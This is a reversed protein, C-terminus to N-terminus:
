EAKQEKANNREQRERSLHLIESFLARVEEPLIGEPAKGILTEILKEERAADRVPRGDRAKIARIRDVTEMREGFLKLIQADIRDINEREQALRENTSNGDQM